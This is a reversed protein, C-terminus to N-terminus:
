GPEVVRGGDDEGRKLSAAAALGAAGLIAALVVLTGVDESTPKLVMVAVVLFLALLQVRAVVSMRRGIKRSEPGGPPLEKLREGSPKLFFFGTLFTAAWGVLGLVVWLDSFSWASDWVLLAGTIVTALSTPIFLRPTLWDQTQGLRAMEQPDRMREARLFLLDLVVNAGLWVIVVGIHLLLLLEESSM